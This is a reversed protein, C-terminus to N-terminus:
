AHESRSGLRGRFGCTPGHSSRDGGPPQNAIPWPDCPSLKLHPGRNIGKDLGDFVRVGFVGSLRHKKQYSHRNKKSKGSRQCLRSHKPKTRKHRKCFCCPTPMAPEHTWGDPRKKPPLEWGAQLSWAWGSWCRSRTSSPQAITM